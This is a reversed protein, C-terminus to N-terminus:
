EYYYFYIKNFGLSQVTHLALVTLVELHNVLLKALNQLTALM